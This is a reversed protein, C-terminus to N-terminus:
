VVCGAPCCCTDTRILGVVAALRIQCAADVAVANTRILNTRQVAGVRSLAVNRSMRIEFDAILEVGM